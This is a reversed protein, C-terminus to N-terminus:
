HQPAPAPAPTCPKSEKPGGGAIDGVSPLTSDNIVGGTAKGIKAGLKAEEKQAADALHQKLREGWGTKKAPAPATACPSQPQVPQTPTQTQPSALISIVLVKTLGMCILTITRLM